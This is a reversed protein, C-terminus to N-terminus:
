LQDRQGIGAGIGKVGIHRHLRIGRGLGTDM